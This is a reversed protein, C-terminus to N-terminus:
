GAAAAAAQQATVFQQLQTLDHARRVALAAGHTPACELVALSAAISFTQTADPRPKLSRVEERLGVVFDVLTPVPQEVFTLLAVEDFDNQWIRVGAARFATRLELFRREVEREPAPNFFLLHSAQQLRDGAPMGAARLARYHGEIRRAMEPVAQDSATLLACAAYDDPGTLWWHHQKMMEYIAAFRQVVAAGVRRGHEVRLLLVAIAENGGGRRLGQERFMGTTREYEAVFDAARDGLRQLAAAFAFRLSSRMPGFWSARRRLEDACALTADVLAFPQGEARVLSLAAYRFPLAGTHWRRRHEFERYIEAHRRVAAGSSLMPM